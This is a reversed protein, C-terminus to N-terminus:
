IKRGNPEEFEDNFQRRASSPLTCALRMKQQLSLNELPDTEQELKDYLGRQWPPMTCIRDQIIKEPLEQLVDVKLGAKSITSNEEAFCGDGFRISRAPYM